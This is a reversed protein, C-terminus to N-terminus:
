QQQQWPFGEPKLLDALQLLKLSPSYGHHATSGITEYSEGEAHRDLKYVQKLNLLKENIISEYPMKFKIILRSNIFPM